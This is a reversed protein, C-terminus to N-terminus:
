VKNQRDAILAVLDDPTINELSHAVRDAATLSNAPHTTAVALVAMGAAHAATVGVHADEIVMARAPPVGLGQAAKLFVEPAPKGRQVDEAAVIHRFRDHLNLLTLACDLNERPASSAIACPIDRAHLADLLTRVGPLTELGSERVLTRFLNEKRDALRQAERPDQTWRFLEMIIQPNRRGFSQAFHDDPLLLNDESAMREWAAKHQPASDVVVGDWDFLVAWTQM